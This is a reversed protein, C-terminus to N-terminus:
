ELAELLAPETPIRGAKFIKYIVGYITSHGGVWLTAAEKGLPLVEQPIYQTMYVGRVHGFEGALEGTDRVLDSAVVLRGLLNM